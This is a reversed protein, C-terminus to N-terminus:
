IFINTLHISRNQNYNDVFERLSMTDQSESSCTEFAVLYKKIADFFEKSTASKSNLIIRVPLRHMSEQQFQITNPENNQVNVLRKELVIENGNTV